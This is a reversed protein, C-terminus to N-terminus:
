RELILDLLLVDVDIDERGNTGIIQEVAHVLHFVLVLAHHAVVLMVAVVVVVVQVM